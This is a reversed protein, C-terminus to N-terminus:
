ARKKFRSGETAKSEKPLTDISGMSWYQAHYLSVLNKISAERQMFVERLQDVEDYSERAELWTNYAVTFDPDAKVAANIKSETFKEGAEEFGKRIELYLLAETRDVQMKTSTMDRRLAPLESTAAQFEYAHQQLITDLNNLDIRELIM